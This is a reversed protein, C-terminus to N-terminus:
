EVRRDNDALPIDEMSTGTDDELLGSVRKIAQEFSLCTEKVMLQVAPELARRYATDVISEAGFHDGGRELLVRWQPDRTALQGLTETSENEHGLRRQPDTFRSAAASKSFKTSPPVVTAHEPHPAITAAEIESGESTGGHAGRGSSAVTGSGVEGAKRLLESRSQADVDLRKSVFDQLSELEEELAAVRNRLENRENLVRDLERQVLAFDRLGVTSLRTKSSKVPREFNWLRRHFAM